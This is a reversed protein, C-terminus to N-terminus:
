IELPGVKLGYYDEDGRNRFRENERQWKKALRTEFKKDMVISKSELLDLQRKFIEVLRRVDYIAHHAQENEGLGYRLGVEELNHRLKIGDKEFNFIVEIMRSDIFLPGNEYKTFLSLIYNLRDIDLSSLSINEDEYGGGPEENVPYKNSLWQLNSRMMSIDYSSNFAVIGNISRDKEDNEDMFDEIWRHLHSITKVPHYSNESSILIYEDIGHIEISEEPISFNIDEVMTWDFLEYFESTRGSEQNLLIAGKSLVYDKNYKLGTTEVDFILWNM